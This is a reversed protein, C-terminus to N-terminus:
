TMDLSSPAEERRVSVLTIEADYLNVDIPHPADMRLEGNAKHNMPGTDAARIGMSENAPNFAVVFAWFMLVAIRM